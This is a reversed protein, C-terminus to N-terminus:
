FPFIFFGKEGSDTSLAAHGNRREENLKAPLEKIQCNELVAIQIQDNKPFLFPYFRKATEVTEELFSSDGKSWRRLRRILIVTAQRLLERKSKRTAMEM